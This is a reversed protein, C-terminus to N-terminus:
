VPSRLAEFLWPIMIGAAQYAAAEEPNHQMAWDRAYAQANVGERTKSTSTTNGSPDTTTTTTTVTPDKEEAKRLAKIFEQVEQRTAARGLRQSLAAHAIQEATRANTLSISTTTSTRTRSVGAAQEGDAWRKLVDLPSVKKGVQWFNASVMALNRWHDAMVRINGGKTDMGAEEMLQAVQRAKKADWRYPDMSVDALTRLEIGGYQQRQGQEDKFYRMPKESMFVKSQPTLAYPDQAQGQAARLEKFQELLQAVDTTPDGTLRQNQRQSPHGTPAPSSTTTRTTTPTPTPSATPTATPTPQQGAHESTAKAAEDTVTKATDLFARAQLDAGHAQIRFLNKLWEQFELDLVTWWPM